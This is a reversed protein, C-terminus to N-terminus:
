KAVQGILDDPDFYSGLELDPSLQVNWYNNLTELLRTVVCDLDPGRYEIALILGNSGLVTNMESREFSVRTM